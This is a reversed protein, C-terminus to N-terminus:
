LQWPQAGAWQTAAAGARNAEGVAIPLPQGRALAAALTGAFADGAGTSDHPVVLEAPEIGAGGADAWEAGHAGRTVVASRAGAAVLDAARGASGLLAAAETANVVLPDAAALLAAPLERAPSANLVLRAGLRAAVAAAHEVVGFPIELQALLCNAEASAACRDLDDDTLAANAGPVVLISNEGDPTVTIVACGTPGPVRRCAEVNVGAAALGRLLAEAYSDSGVAAVLRTVAGARVGACAQNAGKGGPRLSLGGALVTEGPAPRRPARVVIDVNASGVVIVGTM